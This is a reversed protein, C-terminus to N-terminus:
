PDYRAALRAMPQRQLELVYAADIRRIRNRKPVKAITTERSYAAKGSTPVAELLDLLREAGLDNELELMAPFYRWLQERMRNALRNREVSLDEASRAARHGSSRYDCAVPLLAAMATPTRSIRSCVLILGASSTSPAATTPMSENSQCCRTSKSRHMLGTPVLCVDLAERRM